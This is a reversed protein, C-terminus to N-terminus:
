LTEFKEIRVSGEPFKAIIELDGGMAKIYKRLTSIYMDAQGEMKSVSAQKIKMSHALQEQTLQRAQRLEALPMTKILEEVRKDIKAKREESIKSRIINFSKAM